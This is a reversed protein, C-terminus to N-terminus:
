LESDQGNEGVRSDECEERWYVMYADLRLGDILIFDIKKAVAAKAVTANAAGYLFLYASKTHSSLQAQSVQIGQLRIATRWAGAM